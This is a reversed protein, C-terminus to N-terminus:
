GHRSGPGNLKPFANQTPFDLTQQPDIRQLECFFTNKATVVKHCLSVTVNLIRHFPSLRRVPSDASRPSPNSRFHPIQPIVPTKQDGRVDRLPVLFIPVSRGHNPNTRQWLGNLSCAPAESRKPRLRNPEDHCAGLDSPPNTCCCPCSLEMPSGAPDGRQKSKAKQTPAHRVPQYACALECPSASKAKHEMVSIIAAFCGPLLFFNQLRDLNEPM